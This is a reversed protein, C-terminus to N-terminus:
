APRATVDYVALHQVVNANSYALLGPNATVVVDDVTGATTHEGIARVVLAHVNMALARSKTITSDFCKVDVTDRKTMSYLDTYGGPVSELLVLPLKMYPTPSATGFTADTQFVVNVGPLNAKLWTGVILLPDPWSVVPRVSM